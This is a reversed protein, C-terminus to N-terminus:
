RRRVVLLVDELVPCPQHKGSAATATLLIPRGTPAQNAPPRGKMETRRRNPMFTRNLPLCTSRRWLGSVWRGDELGPAGMETIDDAAIFGRQSSTVSLRDHAGELRVPIVTLGDPGGM